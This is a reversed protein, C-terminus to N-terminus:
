ELILTRSSFFFLGEYEDPVRYDHSHLIEGKFYGIGQIEPIRVDFYHGNCIYVADYTEEIVENTVLNMVKVAWQDDKLPSVLCVKHEFLIFESLNFKEDYSQLFKFMEEGTSYSEKAAEFEFDAFSMLQKPLNTKLNKYMSSHVGTKESYVWTGGISNTQEYCTVDLGLSKAYKLTVLGSMGAGIIAIKM